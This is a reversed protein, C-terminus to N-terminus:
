VGVGKKKEGDLSAFLWFNTYDRGGKDLTEFCGSNIRREQESVKLAIGEDDVKAVVLRAMIGSPDNYRVIEGVKLQEREVVTQVRSSHVIGPDMAECDVCITLKTWNMDGFNKKWLSQSM